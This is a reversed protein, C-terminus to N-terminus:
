RDVENDNVDDVARSAINFQEDMYSGVANDLLEDVVGASTEDFFNTVAIDVGQGLQIDTTIITTTTTASVEFSFDGVDDHDDDNTEPVVMDLMFDDVVLAAEEKREQEEEELTILLPNSLTADLWVGMQANDQVLEVLYEVLDAPQTEMVHLTINDLVQRSSVCMLTAPDVRTGRKVKMAAALRPNRSYTDALPKSQLSDVIFAPLQEPSPDFMLLDMTLPALVANATMAAYEMHTVLPAPNRPPGTEYAEELAPADPEGISENTVLKTETGAPFVESIVMEATNEFFRAVAMEDTETAADIEEDLSSDVASELGFESAVDAALADYFVDIEGELQSDIMGADHSVEGTSKAAKAFCSNMFSDVDKEQKLETVIEKVLGSFFEGVPDDDVPDQPKPKPAKTKHNRPSRQKKPAAAVPPSPPPLAKKSQANRWEKLERARRPSRVRSSGLPKLANVRPSKRPSRGLTIRPSKLESRASKIVSAAGKDSVRITNSITQTM